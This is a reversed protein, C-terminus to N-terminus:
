LVSISEDIIIRVSKKIVKAVPISIKGIVFAFLPNILMSRYKRAPSPKIISNIGIPATKSVNLFLGGQLLNSKIAEIIINKLITIEIVLRSRIPVNKYKKIAM